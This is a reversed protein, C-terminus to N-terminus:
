PQRVCELFSIPPQALFASWHEHGFEAEGEPSLRPAHWRVDGLGASRLVAAYTEPRLYYNDFQLVQGDPTVLTHRIAAGERLEGDLEKVLGYKETARFAAVPQTLSNNVAVFRCGPKLCRAVAQCMGLLQEESRAYNLLYAAVVLDFPRGPTFTSADENVYEIGLTRRTEEARALAIMRESLDVGVVRAAGHQKLRRTYHGEGCALDLVDLGRLDGILEFLTFEELHLRWPLLKSQKYKEAIDAYLDTM